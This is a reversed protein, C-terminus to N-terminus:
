HLKKGLDEIAQDVLAEASQPDLSEAILRRTAATAVEVAAERVSQLAEAEAQAIKAEALRTRRELTAKLDAETQGTMQEAEARAQTLIAAAEKAADRQKRQYGALLTQAEERLRVAEDLEAKIKDARADLQGTIAKYSTRAILVVFIVFAITVLIEPDELQVVMAVIVIVLAVWLEPISALKRVSM